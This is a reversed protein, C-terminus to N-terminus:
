KYIYINVFFNNTYICVCMSRHVNIAVLIVILICFGIMIVSGKTAM